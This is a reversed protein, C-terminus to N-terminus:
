PKGKVIDEARHKMYIRLSAKEDDGAEVEARSMLDSKFEKAAVEAALQAYM